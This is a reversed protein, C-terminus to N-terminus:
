NMFFTGDFKSQDQSLNADDFNYGCITCVCDSDWQPPHNDYKEMEDEDFANEFGLDLNSVSEPEPEPEKREHCTIYIVEMNGTEANYKIENLTDYAATIIKDTKDWGYRHMVAHASCFDEAKWYGSVSQKKTRNRIGFYRGM